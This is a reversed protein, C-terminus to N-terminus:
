TANLIWDTSVPTGNNVVGGQAMTHGNMNWEAVLGNDNRWLIDSKDDGNFDAVGALHWDASVAAGGVAVGASLLTSGDMQWIALQGNTSQWLIDNKGDGGFDGVGAIQWDSTVAAGGAVAGGSALAMGNMNWEAVMGSSHRWLIDSKGDGDFDAVAAIQWATPISVVAGASLLTSGDMQWMSLQGNTNHWLIDNKGDGGFDGVGAIQWDSSVAAGGAVLGASAIATGNMNWEAVAGSNNRWLIDTTGDGNFDTITAIHWDPSVQAGGAVADASTLTAGNMQWLALQGRANHWLIDSHGDGNFDNKSVVFSLSQDDFQLREVSSFNDSGDPGTVTGSTGTHTITYSSMLGSFLATDLAFGGILTDNGLGGTLMNPASNGTIVNDLGDGTANVPDSGFLTVNELHSGVTLLYGFSTAVTDTGEGPNEVVTDAANNLVYIDDGLGGTLTDIGTNSTLVNDLANGTATLGASGTLTVNELNTGVLTYSFGAVVTDVGEGLNETVVDGANNLFYTDNGLGGALTDVGSNSILTNDLNNGTGSLNLSGTLTLNQVNAPLVYADLSTQVTNLGASQGFVQPFFVLPAPAYNINVTGMLGPGTLSGDHAEFNISLSSILPHQPASYDITLAVVTFSGFLPTFQGIDDGSILMRPQGTLPGTWSVANAYTGPLLPQGLDHTDFILDNWQTSQGQFYIGIQSVQGNTVLLDAYNVQLSGDTPNVVRIDTGGHPNGPQGFIQISTPGGHTSAYSNLVFTNTGTGGVLTDFGGGGDLVANGAGATLLNNGSNGTITNNSSNGAGNINGTGTLILNEVNPSLIFTASSQVLDTGAGPNEVISDGTSDVIYTDNGNGGAMSDNGAGGNINNDANNGYITDNGSSGIANEIQVGFAIGTVVSPAASTYSFGGARLDIVAGTFFQINSADLTDAGGADWIANGYSQLNYTDNGTHFAMNAGYIFQIAAIDYLMPTAAFTPIGDPSDNYTMVTYHSNDNQAIGLQAFTPRGNGGTDFSHKLGLAHGLEHLIVEFGFSGFSLDTFYDNDFFIDGEAHPWVTRIDPSLSNVFTPDPFLGLGVVGDAILENGTLTLALDATSNTFLTGSGQQVFTINAVNSWATLAQSFANTHVPFWPTAFPPNDELSFSYTLVRPGGDFQWSSGQVLGDVFQNGTPPISNSVPTAM